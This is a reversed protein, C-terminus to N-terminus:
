HFTCTTATCWTGHATRAGVERRAMELRIADTHLVSTPVAMLEMHSQKGHGGNGYRPSPVPPAGSISFPQNDNGEM